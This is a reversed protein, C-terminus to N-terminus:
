KKKRKNKKLIKVDNAEEKRKGGTKKDLKRLKGKASISTALCLAKTSVDAVVWLFSFSPADVDAGLTMPYPDNFLFFSPFALRGRLFPDIMRTPLLCFFNDGELDLWPALLPKIVVVPGTVWPVTRRRRVCLSCATSITSDMMLSTSKSGQASCVVFSDPADPRKSRELTRRKRRRKKNM